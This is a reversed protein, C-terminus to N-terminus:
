RQVLNQANRGVFVDVRIRVAEQLHLGDLGFKARLKGIRPPVSRTSRRVESRNFRTISNPTRHHPIQQSMPQQIPPLGALQILQKTFPANTIHPDRKNVKRLRVQRPYGAPVVVLAEQVNPTCCTHPHPVRPHKPGM